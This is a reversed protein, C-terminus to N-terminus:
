ASWIGEVSVMGNKKGKQTTGDGAVASRGQGNAHAPVYTDGEFATKFTDFNGGGADSGGEMGSRRDRGEEISSSLSSLATPATAEDEKSGIMTKMTFSSGEKKAKGGGRSKKTTTSGVGLGLADSNVQDDLPARWNSM